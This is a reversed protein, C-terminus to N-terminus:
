PLFKEALETPAAIPPALASGKQEARVRVIPWAVDCVDRVVVVEVGRTEGAADGETAGGVRAEPVFTHLASELDDAVYMGMWALPDSLARGVAVVRHKGLRSMDPQYDGVEGLFGDSSAVDPHVLVEPIPM